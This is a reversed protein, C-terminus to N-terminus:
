ENKPKLEISEMISNHVNQISSQNVDESVIIKGINILGKVKMLCVVENNVIFALNNGKYLTNIAELKKNGKESLKIEFKRTKNKKDIEIQSIETYDKVTIIPNESICINKQTNLLNIKKYLCPKEKLEIYLGSNDNQSFSILPLFSLLFIRFIIAKM